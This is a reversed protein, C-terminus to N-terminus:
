ILCPIRYYYYNQERYEKRSKFKAIRIIKQLIVVAGEKQRQKDMVRATYRAPLNGKEIKMLQETRGKKGDPLVGEGLYEGQVAFDPDAKAQELDTIEKQAASVTCAPTCILTLILLFHLRRVM